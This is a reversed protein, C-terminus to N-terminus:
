ESIYGEIESISHKTLDKEIEAVILERVHTNLTKRLEGITHPPAVIAIKRVNEREVYKELSAAVEEAFREKEILHWDTQEVGSRRSSSSDYVRGPRDSGQDRTPPNNDNFVCAPTLNPFLEDGDNRLFLARRGDAVLVLSNHPLKLGHM